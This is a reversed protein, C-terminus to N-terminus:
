VLEGDKTVKPVVICAPYGCAAAYAASALTNEPAFGYFGLHANLRIGGTWSQRWASSSCGFARIHLTTGSPITVSLTLQAAPDVFPPVRWQNRRFEGWGGFDYDLSTFIDGLTFSFVPPANGEYSAEITVISPLSTDTLDGSGLNLDFSETFTGTKPINM